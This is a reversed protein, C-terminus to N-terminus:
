EKRTVPKEIKRMDVMKAIEAEEVEDKEADEMDEKKEFTKKLVDVIWMTTRSSLSWLHCSLM